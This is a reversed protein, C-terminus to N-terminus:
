RQKSLIVQLSKCRSVWLEALNGLSDVMLHVKYRAVEQARWEDCFMTACRSEVDADTILKSRLGNEKERQLSRNAESRMAGFVVDNDLEWRKKELKGSIWLKHAIRAYREAEDLSRMVSGYDTRQDGVTLAAELTDYTSQVNTVWLSEVVALFGEDLPVAHRKNPSEWDAPKKQLERIERENAEELEKKLAASTEEGPKKGSSRLKLQELTLSPAGGHGMACTIGAGDPAEFQDLGCFVGNEIAACYTTEVAPTPVTSQRKRPM